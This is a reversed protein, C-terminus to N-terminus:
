TVPVERPLSSQKRPLVLTLVGHELQANIAHSDLDPHLHFQLEYREPVPRDHLSAASEPQPSRRSGHVTLLDKRLSVNLDERAVGPLAISLQVEGDTPTARYIPRVCRAHDNVNKCPSGTEPSNRSANM